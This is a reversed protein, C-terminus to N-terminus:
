AYAYDNTSVSACYLNKHGKSCFWKITKNNIDFCYATFGHKSTCHQKACTM